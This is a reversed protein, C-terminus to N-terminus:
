ARPTGMPDSSADFASRLGPTHLWEGLAELEAVAEELTMEPPPTPEAAVKVEVPALLGGIQARLKEASVAAAFAGRAEAKASLRDLRALAAAREVERM